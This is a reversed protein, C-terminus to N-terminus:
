AARGEILRLAPGSEAPDPGAERSACPVPATLADSLARDVAWWDLYRFYFARAYDPAGARGIATIVAELTPGVFGVQEPRPEALHARYTSVATQVLHNLAPAIVVLRGEDYLGHQVMTHALCHQRFFQQVPSRRLAPALPEVFLGSAPAIEGYRPKLEPAPEQCAEAYKVEVAVFGTRGQPTDYGLLVDFATHDGTYRSAGRGPAHEFWVARVSARRDRLDPCLLRLVRSALALDLRLPGFLNFTLPESSLLNTWLRDERMLAGVERYAVERRTLAAVAPSLFNAGSRGAAPSLRSGLKRRSGDPSSHTGIPLQHQERWLAQLLRACARFRTDSPEFVRHRRLIPEPILPLHRLPQDPTAPM